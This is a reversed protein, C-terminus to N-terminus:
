GHGTARGVLRAYMGHPLHRLTAMLWAFRTPFRIEFRRGRLGNVIATAAEEASILFPMPFENRDTLPTTVGPAASRM